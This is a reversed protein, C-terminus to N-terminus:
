LDKLLVSEGKERIANQLTEILDWEKKFQNEKDIIFDESGYLTIREFLFHASIKQIDIAPIYAPTLNKSTPIEVIIGTKELLYLADNTLQTPIKHKDSLEDATYPKDGQEFRKIILTSILL